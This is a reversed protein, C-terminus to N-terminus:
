VHSLSPRPCFCQDPLAGRNREKWFDERGITFYFYSEVLFTPVYKVWVQTVQTSSMLQHFLKAVTPEPAALHHALYSGVAVPLSVMPKAGNWGTCGLSGTCPTEM